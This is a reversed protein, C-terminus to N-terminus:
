KEVDNKLLDDLYKSLLYRIIGAQSVNIEKSADELKKALDKNVTVMIRKSNQGIMKKEGRQGFDLM